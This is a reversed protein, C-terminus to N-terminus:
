VGLKCIAISWLYLALTVSARYRHISMGAHLYVRRGAIFIKHLQESDNM